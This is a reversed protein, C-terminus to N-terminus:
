GYLEFHLFMHAPHTDESLEPAWKFQVDELASDMDHATTEKPDKGVLLIVDRIVKRFDEDTALQNTSWAQRVCVGETMRPSSIM